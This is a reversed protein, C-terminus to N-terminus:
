LSCSANVCLWSYFLVLPRSFFPLSISSLPAPRSGPSRRRSITSEFWACYPDRAVRIALDGPLLGVLWRGSCCAAPVWVAGREHTRTNVAGSAVFMPGPKLRPGPAAGPPTYSRLVPLTMHAYLPPDNGIAWSTQTHAHTQRWQLPLQDKQINIGWFPQRRVVVVVAVAVAVVVLVVVAVVVLVVV